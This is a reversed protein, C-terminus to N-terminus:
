GSFARFTLVARNRRLGYLIPISATWGKFGGRAKQYGVDTAELGFPQKEMSSSEGADSM